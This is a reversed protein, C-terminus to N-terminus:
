LGHTNKRISGVPPTKDNKQKLENRNQTLWLGLCTLGFLKLGNDRRSSAHEEWLEDIANANFWEKIEASHTTAHALSGLDGKLWHSVPANFGKKPRDIIELPLNNQQSQKLLFKKQLRKIKVKTIFVLVFILYGIRM